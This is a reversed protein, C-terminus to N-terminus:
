IISYITYTILSLLGILITYNIARIQWIKLRAHYIGSAHKFEQSKGRVGSRLLTMSLIIDNQPNTM